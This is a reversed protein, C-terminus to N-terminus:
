QIPGEFDKLIDGLPVNGLIKDVAERVKQAQASAQAADFHRNWLGPTVIGKERLIQGLASVTSVLQQILAFQAATTARFKDLPVFEAEAM